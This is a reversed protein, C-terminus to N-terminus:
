RTRGHQVRRKRTTSSGSQGSEATKIDERSLKLFGGSFKGVGM